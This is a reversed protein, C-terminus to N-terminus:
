AVVLLLAAAAATINIEFWDTVHAPLAASTAGNAASAAPPATSAASTTLSNEERLYTQSHRARSIVLTYLKKECYFANMDTMQRANLEYMCAAASSASSWAASQPPTRRSRLRLRHVDTWMASPESRGYPQRRHVQGTLGNTFINARVFLKVRMGSMCDVRMGSVCDVRMGSTCGVRMGSM